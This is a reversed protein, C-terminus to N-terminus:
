RCQQLAEAETKVERGNCQPYPMTCKLFGRAIQQSAATTKIVDPSESALQQACRDARESVVERCESESLGLRVSWEERACLQLGADKWLQFHEAKPIPNAEITKLSYSGQAFACKCGFSTM